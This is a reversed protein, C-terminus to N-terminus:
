SINKYIFSDRIIDLLEKAFVPVVAYFILETWLLSNFGSLNYEWFLYFDTVSPREPELLRECSINDIVKNFNLFSHKRGLLFICKYM